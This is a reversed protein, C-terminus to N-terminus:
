HGNGGQLTGLGGGGCPRLWLYCHLDTEPSLSSPRAISPATTPLSQQDPLPGFSLQRFFLCGTLSTVLWRGWRSPFVPCVEIVPSCLVFRLLQPVCSLPDVHCWSFPDLGLQQSYMQGLPQPVCSPQSYMQRLPQPICSLPNVKTCSVCCPDLGLQRLSQPVCSVPDVDTCSM